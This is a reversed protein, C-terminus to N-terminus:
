KKPRTLRSLGFGSKRTKKDLSKYHLVLEDGEMDGIYRYSTDKYGGSLRTADPGLREGTLKMEKEGNDWWTVTVTLQGDKAEHFDYVGKGSKGQDDEYKGDWKGDFEAKKTPPPKALLDAGPALFPVGIMVLFVGALLSWPINGFPSRVM